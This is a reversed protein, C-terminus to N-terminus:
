KLKNNIFTKVNNLQLNNDTKKPNQRFPNWPPDWVRGALAAGGLMLLIVVVLGIIAIILSILKNNRPSYSM